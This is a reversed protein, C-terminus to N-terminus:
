FIKKGNDFRALFLFGCGKLYPNIFEKGGHHHLGLQIKQAYFIREVAKIGV